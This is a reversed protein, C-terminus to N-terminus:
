PRYRPTPLTWRTDTAAVSRGAQNPAPESAARSQSFGHLTLSFFRIIPRGRLVTSSTLRCMSLLAPSSPQQGHCNLMRNSPYPCNVTFQRCNYGCRKDHSNANPSIGSPIDTQWLHSLRRQQLGACKNRPVGASLEASIFALPRATFRAPDSLVLAFNVSLWTSSIRRRRLPPATARSSACSCPTCGEAM